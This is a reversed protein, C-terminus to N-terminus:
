QAERRRENLKAEIFSVAQQFYASATEKHIGLDEAIEHYQKNKIRMELVARLKAPILPAITRYAEAGLVSAFQDLSAPDAYNASPTDGEEGWKDTMPAEASVMPKSVPGQATDLVVEGGIRDAYTNGVRKIGDLCVNKFAANFMGDLGRLSGKPRLVIRALERASEAVAEKYLDDGTGFARCAARRADKHHRRWLRDLLERARTELKKAEEPNHERRAEAQIVYDRIRVVLDESREENLEDSGEM